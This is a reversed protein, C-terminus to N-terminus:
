PFSESTYREFRMEDSWFNKELGAKQKLQSLFEKPEPLSEWVAPLFTGRQQRYYLTLGDIGARLQDLLDSECTYAIPEPVSLIAIHIALESSFEQSNLASFRPDQFAAAYAHEAVDQVLPLSAQLAGICGRLQRHLHLTVFSARCSQLTDPYDEVAVTLASGRQLGHGISRRAIDLLTNREQENLMNNVFRM